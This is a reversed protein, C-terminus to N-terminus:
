THQAYKKKKTMEDESNFEYFRKDLSIVCCNDSKVNAGSIAPSGKRFRLWVHPNIVEIAVGKQLTERPKQEIKLEFTICDLLRSKTQSM